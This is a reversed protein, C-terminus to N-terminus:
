EATEKSFIIRAVRYFGDTDKADLFNKMEDVKERILQAALRTIPDDGESAKQEALTAFERAKRLVDHMGNM